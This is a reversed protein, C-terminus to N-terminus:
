GLSARMEQWERLERRTRRQAIILGVSVMATLFALFGWAAAQAKLRLCIWPTMVALELALLWWGARLAQLRRQCRLVSLAVFASTTEASPRWTGRLYWLSFSMAWLILLALCAMAGVNIATPDRLASWAVFALMGIASVMEGAASLAMKLSRRKVRQRIVDRIEPGPEPDAQWGARWELLEDDPEGPEKPERPKSTL